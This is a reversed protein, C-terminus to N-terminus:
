YCNHMLYVSLSGDVKKSPVIIVDDDSDSLSFIFAGFLIGYKCGYEFVHLILKMIQMM